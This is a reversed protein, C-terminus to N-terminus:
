DEMYTYWMTKIWEDVSPSKPQKWTKAVTFLAAIFMLTCSDKQTLTKMEKPYIGLLPIAPDWPLEIQSKKSSGGCEKGYHSYCNVIGGVTCLPERKAVDKGANTIEQRKTWPWELLYRMTTKPYNKKLRLILFVKGFIICFFFFSCFSHFLIDIFKM